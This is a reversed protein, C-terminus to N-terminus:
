LIQISQIMTQTLSRGCVDYNSETMNSPNLTLNITNLAVKLLINTIDNTLSRCTCCGVYNSETM